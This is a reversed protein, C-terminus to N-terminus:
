CPRHDVEFIGDPFHQHNVVIRVSRLLDQQSNEVEPFSHPVQQYSHSVQQYYHQDYSM